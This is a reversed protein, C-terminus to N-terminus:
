VWQAFVAALDGAAATYTLRTSSLAWIIRNTFGIPANRLDITVESNAGALTYGFGVMTSSSISALNAADHLQVYETGGTTKLARFSLLSGPVTTIEASQAPTPAGTATRNSAARGQNAATAADTPLPLSTASVPVPAARLESDSLAGSVPLRDRIAELHAIETTQNAASADGGGGGGGATQVIGDDDVRLPVPKGTTTQGTSYAM